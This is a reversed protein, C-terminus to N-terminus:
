WCDSQLIPFGLKVILIKVSITPFPKAWVESRVLQM